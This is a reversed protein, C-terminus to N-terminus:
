SGGDYAHIVYMGDDHNSIRTAWNKTIFPVLEKNYSETPDMKPHMEMEIRRIGALDSPKIYWEYGECDCKLFTISDNYKNKIMTLLQNFTFTAVNKREVKNFSLNIPNGDGIAIPLVTVNHCNNLKLNDNLQKCFLPEVAYVHKAKLAAAMTFDGITTGIDLVVDDSNIDSLDYEFRDAEVMYNSYGDVKYKLGTKAVFYDINEAGEIVNNRQYIAYDVGGMKNFIRMVPVTDMIMKRFKRIM